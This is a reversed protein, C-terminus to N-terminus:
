EVNEYDRNEPSISGLPGTRSRVTEGAREPATRGGDIVVIRDARLISPSHHAIMVITLEGHLRNLADLIKRESEPDLANTAEDLLLMAPRRLLARALAIRQREGGSLRIGRDGVVTDLGLPLRSVFKAAEALRLASWLDEDSAEPLAWLLNARVTDHFLFAEQPVYGVSGRWGQLLPGNLIKDDISVRGRDPSLLGLVIDALTSKGAGSPGTVATLSGAPIHLHLDRLAWDDAGKVYQFWVGELQIGRGLHLPEGPGAAFEERNKEFEREMVYVAQFSPLANAIRQLHQQIMSFRPLLRSFLFVILLLNAAPMNIMNVAVFFFVALIVAAGTDYYMRTASNAKAFRIMQKTVGDTIGRFRREHAAELNFSKAIKMGGLHEAVAAYIDNMSGRLAEGSGLVHRHLPRLLLLFGGGCALAFLTMPASIMFAIVVHVFAIVIAGTVQLLHQTAFGVRDLDATLVHIVDSSKMRLFGLWGIRCLGRYLRNRLTQTFGHIIAVNLIDRRRAAMAYASVIVVYISLITTLTMPLGLWAFAKSAYSALGGSEHRGGLGILGLFPVLMMLGVGQSLGLFVMLFLSLWPKFGSLRLLTRLYAGIM